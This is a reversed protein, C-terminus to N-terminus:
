EPAAVSLGLYPVLEAFSELLAHPSSSELRARPHAGWLVGIAHVGAAHAMDLDFTTDGVMVARAAPCSLGELLGLLVAPDPKSPGADPTTSAAFCDTLGHAALSRELGARSKSTAIALTCGRERLTLLGREVGPYLHTEKRLDAARYHAAYSAFFAELNTDDLEPVAGSLFDRVPLGIGSMVAERDPPRLGLERAAAVACAVVLDLSNMLTGDLDFVVVRPPTGLPM